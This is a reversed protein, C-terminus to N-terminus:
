VATWICRQSCLKRFVARIRRSNGLELFNPQLLRNDVLADGAFLASCLSFISLGWRVTCDVAPFSVELEKWKAFIKYAFSIFKDFYIECAREEDSSTFSSSSSEYPCAFDWMESSIQILWIIRASRSRFTITTDETVVGSQVLHNGHRIERAHAKIGRITENLREGEYIWSGILSKQFFHMDGRLCFSVCTLM